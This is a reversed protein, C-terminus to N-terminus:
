LDRVNMAQFVMVEGNLEGLIDLRPGERRESSM